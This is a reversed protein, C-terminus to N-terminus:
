SFHLDTFLEAALWRVPLQQNADIQTYYSKSLGIPSWSNTHRTVDDIVVM